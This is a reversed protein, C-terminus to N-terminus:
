PHCIVTFVGEIIEFESSPLDRLLGVNSIVNEPVTLVLLLHLM